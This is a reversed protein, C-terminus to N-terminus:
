ASAKTAVDARIEAAIEHLAEVTRTLNEERQDPGSPLTLGHAALRRANPFDGAAHLHESESLCPHFPKAEIGRADLAAAVRDREACVVEAWLPLEGAETDVDLLRLYRLDALNKRYFSWVRRVGAIKEPLKALQALGLAAQMDTMRFNCGFAQFRNLAISATGHNRLSSLAAYSADDRASVFGGEGTTMLKTIGLSFAAVDGLTGLMGGPGKSCLAQACDEIVKADSGAVAARLAAVDCARGNLHVAIVAKTREGVAARVAAPDILPRDRGVDVLKVRAGLLLAAHAPAIFTAAPVIVEDGPQLGVSLLALVLAVSGSTTVATHPIGLTSALGAELERCLPGQNIRRDRIAATIAAIEEDALDTRWWPV